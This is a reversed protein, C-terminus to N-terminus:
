GRVRRRMARMMGNTGSMMPNTVRTAQNLMQNVLNTMRGRGTQRARMRMMQMIALVIGGITVLSTMTTRARRM